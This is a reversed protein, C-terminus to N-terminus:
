NLNQFKKTPAKKVYNYPTIYICKKLSKPTGRTKFHVYVKLKRWRCDLINATKPAIISIACVAFIM